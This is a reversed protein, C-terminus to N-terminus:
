LYGYVVELFNKDYKHVIDSKTMSFFFMFGAQAADPLQPMASSPLYKAEKKWNFTTM